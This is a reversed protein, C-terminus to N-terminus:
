ALTLVCVALWPVVTAVLAILAARDNREDTLGPNFWSDSIRVDFM